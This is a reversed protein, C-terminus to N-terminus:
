NDEHGNLYSAYGLWAFGCCAFAEEDRLDIKGRDLSLLLNRVAELSSKKRLQEFPEKMSPKMYCYGYMGSTAANLVRLRMFRAAEDKTPARALYRAYFSLGAERTMVQGNCFSAVDYDVPGWGACEWDIIFLKQGDYLLNRTHLDNHNLVLTQEKPWSQCEKLMVQIHTPLMGLDASELCRKLNFLDHRDSVVASDPKLKQIQRIHAILQDALDDSAHMFGPCFEAPLINDIKEMIILGTDGNAYLMHPVIKAKNAEHLIAIEQAAGQPGFVGGTRRAIYQKNNFSFSYIHGGSFGGSMPQLDIVDTTQLAAVAEEQSIPPPSYEGWVIEHQVDAKTQGFLLLFIFIFYHM